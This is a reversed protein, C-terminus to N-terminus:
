SAAATATAPASTSTPCGAGAGAALGVRRRARRPRPHARAQGQGLGAGRRGADYPADLDKVVVGEHGAALADALSRRPRRRRRRHRLRAVRHPEPVLADLAASGSPAPRTSCTTATSTCCTSSSRRSARRGRAQATRSATEQFPRPRGDADLALAEGDLVFARPRCRRAVEVVEPLRDTIDDLRPHLRAGRRRRPAGPDPHRRAQRRGGGAAAAVPRRWRRPSPRRRELRADAAGPSRGRARVRGAGGRRRDARGAGRGRDLRRADRGPARRGAPVGGAAALAEQVLADLAGQRVEGTVLGRLWRQEDATARGFLTPRRAGGRRRRARGPCRPSAARLGRRGRAGDPHARGGPPPLTQLAAGASAPAASACRAASTPRHRDRGRRPAARGGLLTPSRRWRPRGRAPPPSRRRLHRRGRRAADDPM